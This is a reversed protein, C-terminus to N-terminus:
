KSGYFKGNVINPYIIKLYAGSKAPNVWYHKADYPYYNQSFWRVVTQTAKDIAADSIDKLQWPNIAIEGVRYQIGPGKFTSDNLYGKDHIYLPKYYKKASSDYWNITTDMHKMQRILTQKDSWYTVTDTNYNDHLVYVWSHQLWTKSDQKLFLAHLINSSSYTQADSTLVGILMAGLLATLLM